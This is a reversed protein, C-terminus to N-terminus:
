FVKIVAWNGLKGEFNFKQDTIREAAYINTLTHKTLKATEVLSDGAIAMYPIIQDGMYRDLAANQSIHYLLEEAAEQGVLEARKGPEGISSGGVRSMGETWLVIGSGPGLGNNSHQVEIDAKFGEKKLINEATKAQRVAVHEPLKVAHSVGKIQDVQLHSFNFPKLKRIPFIKMEIIGGGRPYHGRQILNMRAKYGISSLLPLTINRLYDASPSWRVDTGGKLTIKVPADAFAASIMFCQLVLTISGATGIDVKYEGGVLDNPTFSIETSGIGVGECSAQSLLAVSKLANLHQPMLGKKPRKARINIVHIANGTLVSLAVSIRLIAGGGEGYSGDIEIMIM